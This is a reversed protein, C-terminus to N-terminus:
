PLVMTPNHAPDKRYTNIKAASLAPPRTWTIKHETYNIFQTLIRLLLILLNRQWVKYEFHPNHNESHKTSSKWPPAQKGYIFCVSQVQMCLRKIIHKQACVQLAILHLFSSKLNSKKKKKFISKEKFIILMWATHTPLQLLIYQSSSIKRGTQCSGRTDTVPFNDSFNRFSFPFGWGPWWSKSQSFCFQQLSSELFRTSFKITTHLM